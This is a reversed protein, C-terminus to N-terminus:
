PRDGPPPPIINLPGRPKAPATPKPAPTPAPKANPMPAAAEIAARKEISRSPILVGVIAGLAGLYAAYLPWADSLAKLADPARWVASATAAVVMAGLAAMVAVFVWGAAPRWGTFFWHEKVGALALRARQEGEARMTANTEALAKATLEAASKEVEVFGAIEARAQEMAANIKARATEEGAEVVRENLQAPTAGAPLGFQGMILSTLKGAAAAGAPGAVMGGAISAAVPALPALIKAVALIDM